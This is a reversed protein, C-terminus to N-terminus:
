GYNVPCPCFEVTFKYGCSSKSKSYKDAIESLSTLASAREETVINIRRREKEIHDSAYTVSNTAMELAKVYAKSNDTLLIEECAKIAKLADKMADSVSDSITIVGHVGNISSLAEYM